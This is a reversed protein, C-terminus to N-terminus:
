ALFQGMAVLEDVAFPIMIVMALGAVLCLSCWTGIVIPQITIFYISVVGLPVVLIGFFTVMWPMMRWRNRSGMAAMLIELMYAVAGLGGDPIPWAKSVDSTIITETGNLAGKGSFFPDWVSSVHGLQYATLYRAILFGILGMAIIPMRQAWTSPSYSWGPPIASPDMMGEMSMGPMMPVLIAFAIALAGILTDNAYVAASPAWFVLPAFLLWLGVFTNAWQAWNFRTMLSLGGFAILLFGSALDSWALMASRWEPASLGREVTVRLVAESLPGGGFMGFVIPSTMLWAGLGINAFHAWRTQRGGGMGVTKEKEEVTARQM